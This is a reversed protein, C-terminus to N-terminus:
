ENENIIKKLTNFIYDMHLTDYRHDIPIALLNNEFFIANPSVDRAKQNLPWLIPAYIGCDSLKRQVEDRKNVLIPLYFPAFVNNNYLIKIGSLNVLLEYLYIVNKTRISILESVNLKFLIKKSYNSISHPIKGNNLSLDANKFLDLYTSKLQINFNLLYQAKLQLSKKRSEVFYNKKYRLAPMQLTNSIIISGDPIGLWKRLSGVYYDVKKNYVSQIDFVVHTIDEIVNIDIFLSKILNISSNTDVLGFYNIVLVIDPNLKICLETLSDIDISLDENIPYYEVAWGNILFPQVMSDCCYAPLLIICSKKYILKSLLSLSDRGSRM